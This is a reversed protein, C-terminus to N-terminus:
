DNKDDKPMDMIDVRIVEGIPSSMKRMVIIKDGVREPVLHEMQEGAVRELEERAKERENRSELWDSKYKEELDKADLYTKLEQKM